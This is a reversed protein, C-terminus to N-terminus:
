RYTNAVGPVASLWDHGTVPFDRPKDSGAPIASVTGQLTYALSGASGKGAIAALARAAPASPKVDVQTVGASLQPVPLHINADIHTAPQNNVLMTLHLARFDMSAYSNNLIRVSMNWSGDPTVRLQQVSLTPPFVSKHRPACAPLAILLLAPLVWKSLRPMM